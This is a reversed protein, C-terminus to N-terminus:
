REGDAREGSSPPGEVLRHPLTPIVGDALAGVLRQLPQLAGLQGRKMLWRTLDDAGVLVRIGDADEIGLRFEAEPEAHGIVVVFAGDNSLVAFLQLEGSSSPGM